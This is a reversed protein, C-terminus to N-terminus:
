ADEIMGDGISIGTECTYAPVEKSSLTWEGDVLWENRKRRENIPKLSGEDFFSIRGNGEPCRTIWALLSAAARRVRGNHRFGWINTLTMMDIKQCNSVRRRVLAELLKLTGIVVTEPGLLALFREQKRKGVWNGKRDTAVGEDLADLFADEVGTTGRVGVIWSAGRLLCRAGSEDGKANLWVAEHLLVKSSPRALVQVVGCPM